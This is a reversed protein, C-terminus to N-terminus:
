QDPKWIGAGLPKSIGFGVGVALAVIFFLIGLRIMLRTRKTYQNLLQCSRNKQKAARTKQKWYDATPWVSNDNKGCSKRNLRDCSRQPTVMAEVDTDYANAHGHHCEPPVSLSSDRRMEFSLAGNKENSEATMTSSPTLAPFAETSTVTTGNHGAKATQDDRIVTAM